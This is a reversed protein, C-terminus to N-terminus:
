YKLVMARNLMNRDNRFVGHCTLWHRFLTSVSTDKRRRTALSVAVPHREIVVFRANPFMARLVRCRILNPPSKGLLVAAGLDWHM